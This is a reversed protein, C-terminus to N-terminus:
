SGKLWKRAEETDSFNRVKLNSGDATKMVSEVSMQALVNGPVVVAMQRACSSLIRPFWTENIWQQTEKTFVSLEKTNALWNASKKQILFDLGANLGEKIQEGKQFSGKWEMLVGNFADDWYITLFPFSKHVTTAM